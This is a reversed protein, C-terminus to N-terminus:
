IIICIIHISSYVLIILSVAFLSFKIDKDSIQYEEPINFQLQTLAPSSFGLMMGNLLSALCAILTCVAVMWVRDKTPLDRLTSASSSSETKSRSENNIDSAMIDCETSEKVGYHPSYGGEALLASHQSSHYSSSVLINCEVSEESIIRKDNSCRGRPLLADRSVGLFSM